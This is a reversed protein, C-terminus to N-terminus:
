HDVSNSKSSGASVALLIWAIIWTVGGIPTIAGMIPLNLAVLLYLSGSFILIGLGMPIGIWWLWRSSLTGASGLAALGLLVLTHTLHYRVGVDLQDARRAITEADLGRSELFGELGHAGFAGIVVGLMGFVGAAVLLFKVASAVKKERVQNM